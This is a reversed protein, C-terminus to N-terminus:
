CGYNSILWLFFAALGMGFIEVPYSAAFIYARMLLYKFKM